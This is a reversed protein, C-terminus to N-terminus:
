FFSVSVYKLKEVRNSNRNEWKMFVSFSKVVKEGM